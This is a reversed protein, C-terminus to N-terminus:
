NAEKKGAHEGTEAKSKEGKSGDAADLNNRAETYDPKIESM